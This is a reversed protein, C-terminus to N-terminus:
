RVEDGADLCRCRFPDVVGKRMTAPKAPLVAVAGEAYGREIIGANAVVDPVLFIMVAFVPKGPFEGLKEIPVAHYVIRRMNQILGTGFGYLAVWSPPGIRDM